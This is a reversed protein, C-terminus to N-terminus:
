LRGLALPLLTPLVAVTHYWRKSFLFIPRVVITHRCVPVFVAASLFGSTSFFFFFVAGFFVVVLAVEFDTGYERCFRRRM